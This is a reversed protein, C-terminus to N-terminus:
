KLPSYDTPTMLRSEVKKVLRGNAISEAYAKKWAPDSGFGRWAAGRAEKSPFALIYILTDKSRPGELPTWYGILTMGHSKFIKNTHDRFRAHLDDLKGENTTYTRLEFIRNTPAKAEEAQSMRPLQMLGITLMACGLLTAIMLRFLSSPSRNM